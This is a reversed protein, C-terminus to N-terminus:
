IGLQKRFNAFETDFDKGSNKVVNRAIREISVQDGNKAYELLSSAVPNGQANQELINLVFQKPNGSKRLMSMLALMDNM